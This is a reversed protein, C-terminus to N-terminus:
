RRAPDRVAKSEDILAHMLAVRHPAVEGREVAAQVACGPERDHRCDRFRCHGLLSRLEV